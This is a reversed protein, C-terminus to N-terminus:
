SLALLRCWREAADSAVSAAHQAAQQPKWLELRVDWTPPMARQAQEAELLTGASWWRCLVYAWGQHEFVKRQKVTVRAYEVVSPLAQQPVQEESVLAAHLALPLDWAQVTCKHVHSRLLEGQPMCEHDVLTNVTRGDPACYQIDSVQEWGGDAESPAAEWGLFSHLREEMRQGQATTCQRVRTRLLVGQGKLMCAHWATCVTQLAAELAGQEAPM